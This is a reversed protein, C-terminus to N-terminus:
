EAPPPPPPEEAESAKKLQDAEKQAAQKLDREVKRITRNPDQAPVSNVELTMLALRVFLVVLSILFLVLGVRKFSRNV